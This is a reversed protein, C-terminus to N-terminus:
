YPDLKLILEILLSIFLFHFYEIVDINRDMEQLCLCHYYLYMRCAAIHIPYYVLVLILLRMVNHPIGNM